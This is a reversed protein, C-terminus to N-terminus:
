DGALEEGIREAVDKWRKKMAERSAANPLKEQHFTLATKAGGKPTLRVQLISHSPWEPLKWQMRIHSGPEYTTTRAILGSSGTINLGVMGDPVPDETETLAAIGRRSDLYEWLTAADAPLTKTVGIQLGGSETQGLIRRGIHKEYEVTITQSWWKSVGHRDALHAAIEKHPVEAMGEENLLTFWASGIRGTAKELADETM